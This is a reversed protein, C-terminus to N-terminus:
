QKRSGPEVDASGPPGRGGVAGSLTRTSVNRRHRQSLHGHPIAPRNAKPGVRHHRLHGESGAQPHEDPGPGLGAGDPADDGDLGSRSEICGPQETSLTPDPQNPSRNPNATAEPSLADQVTRPIRRYFSGASPCMRAQPRRPVNRSDHLPSRTRGCALSMEHKRSVFGYSVAVRSGQRERHQCGSLRIEVCGRGCPCPCPCARAGVGQRAKISPLERSAKFKVSLWGSDPPIWPKGTSTDM